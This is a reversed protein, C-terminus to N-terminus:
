KSRDTANQMNSNSNSIVEAPLHYFLPHRSNGHACFDWETQSLDGHMSTLTVSISLSFITVTYVLLLFLVINMLM